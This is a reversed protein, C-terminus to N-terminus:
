FTVTPEWKTGDHYQSPMISIEFPQTGEQGTYQSDLKAAAGVDVPIVIKHTTSMQLPTSAKLSLNTGPASGQRTLSIVQGGASLVLSTAVLDLDVPESFTINLTDVPSGSFAIWRVRPLSGVRFTHPTYTSRIRTDGSFRVLYEGPALPGSPAYTLTLSATGKVTWSGTIATGDRRELQFAQKIASEVEADTLANGSARVRIKADTPIGTDLHSPTISVTVWPETSSDRSTPKTGDSECGSLGVVFGACLLWYITRRNRTM